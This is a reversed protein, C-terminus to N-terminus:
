FQNNFPEVPQSAADVPGSYEPISDEPSDRTAAVEAQGESPNEGAFEYSFLAVQAGSRPESKETTWPVFSLRGHILLHTGKKVHEALAEAMKGFATIDFWHTVQVRGESTNKYSNSAIPFNGIAMGSESYRLRVARGANGIISINASM